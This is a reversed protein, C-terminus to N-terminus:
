FPFDDPEAPKQMQKLGALVAAKFREFYPKDMYSIIPIFDSKSGDQKKVEKAPLNFWERGDQVFHKCDLTKRGTPYEILSFTGKLAGKDLQKYQGIEVSTETGEITVPM